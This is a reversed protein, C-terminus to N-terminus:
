DALYRYYFDDEDEEQISTISRPKKAWDDDYEETLEPFMSVVSDSDYWERELRGAKELFRYCRIHVYLVAWN